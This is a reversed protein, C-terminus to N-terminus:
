GDLDKHMAACPLTLGPRLPFSTMADLVFGHAQYFPVANLTAHLRLCKLSRELARAELTQLLRRGIGRRICDPRVYVAYVEGNEPNLESFGVVENQILAVFFLQRAIARLYGEATKGSIWADIQTVEYVPGCIERIARAHVAAIEEVDSPIAARISMGTRALYRLQQEFDGDLLNTPV